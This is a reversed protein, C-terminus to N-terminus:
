SRLNNKLQNIKTRPEFSIPLQHRDMQKNMMISVWSVSLLKWTMGKSDSTFIALFKIIIQTVRIAKFKSFVPICFLQNILRVKTCVSLLNVIFCM